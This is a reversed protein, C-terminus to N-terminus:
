LIKASKILILFILLNKKETYYLYHLNPRVLVNIKELCAIHFYNLNIDLFFFNFFYM